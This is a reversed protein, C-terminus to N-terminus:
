QSDRENFLRTASKGFTVLDLRQYCGTFAAPEPAARLRSAPPLVLLPSLLHPPSLARGLFNEPISSKM